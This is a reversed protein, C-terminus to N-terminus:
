DPSSPATGWHGGFDPNDTEEGHSEQGAVEPITRPPTWGQAEEWYPEGHAEVLWDHERVGTDLLAVVPRGAPLQSAPRRLPKPLMVYDPAPLWAITGHGSKCGSARFYPYLSRWGPTTRWPPPRASTTPCASRCTPTPDAPWGAAPGPWPWRTM